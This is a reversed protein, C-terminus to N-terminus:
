RSIKVADLNRRMATLENELKCAIIQSSDKDRFYRQVLVSMLAPYERLVSAEVDREIYCCYYPSWRAYVGPPRKIKTCFWEVVNGMGSATPILNFPSPLTTQLMYDIYVETKGFTWEIDVNDNVRQFTNSMTAILMNLVVIVSIVEFCGFCFYGIRETYAHRNDRMKDVNRLERTNELVVDASELPAMCFLAWFLTNLTDSLSTFSSVQVTKMGFEDEYVMGDYYQYFRALGAAFASIIIAFVIIYKYIDITMKGLSVQLPGLHYNLQCLFMLRFFAFITALCFTGEALLTPDYQRWYKRDLDEQDRIAIDIAAAVWFVFTLGFMTLMIIEAWNWMKSFYRHPGQMVIMRLASWTYGCVYLIIPAEAGTNPPGRKQLSKDQNSIYFVLALFVFYAAVHTILKNLPIQWHRVLRHRPAVMCVILIIPTIFVRYLIIMAKTRTYKSRWNHWDGLWYSELVQQTNPHAVFEKQRYDVAMLLRPLVFHRRGRCGSKQKLIFEVEESTRCCGILDVAFASVDDSLQLYAGAIHRYAAANDALEATLRFATLIPDSSVHVLYAPSAIARYVSLRASSAHLPDENVLSNKCAICRCNPVHPRAICHGRDILLSVLEYHGMQAALILPTVHAPYDTSHTTGAFELGPSIKSQANLLMELIKISNYHIAHLVNDGIEINPHTLLFEVMAVSRNQVAIHLASVGQFNICNLNLDPHSAVYTKVADVDDESVLALFDTEHAQLKPLHIRDNSSIEINDYSSTELKDYSKSKRRSKNGVENKSKRIYPVSTKDYLLNYCHSMTRTNPYPGHHNVKPVSYAKRQAYYKNVDPPRMLTPMQEQDRLNITEKSSSMYKADKTTSPLRSLKDEFAPISPLKQNEISDTKQSDHSKVSKDVRSM